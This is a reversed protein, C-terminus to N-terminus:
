VKQYFSLAIKELGFNNPSFIFETNGLFFYGKQALSRCFKSTLEKKLDGTLYIFFNRCLILDWGTEYRDNILDKKEFEVQQKIKNDLIYKNNDEGSPAFYKKKIEEPVKKISNRSYIGKEAAELIEPDLDSALIKYRSSDIGMEQLIITVTYPESGNSCPASWINIKSKRALLEPFIEKELFEFNEPNRFFESTNITFHGLYRARFKPDKKLLELCHSYNEINNRRMLSDTRRKVRKIKYGDLNINLLKKAEDKFEDFTLSM